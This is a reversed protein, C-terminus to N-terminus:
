PQPLVTPVPPASLCPLPPSPGGWPGCRSKPGPPHLSFAERVFVAAWPFPLSVPSVQRPRHVPSPRQYEWHSRLLVCHLAGPPGTASVRAGWEPSGPELGPRLSSSGVHQLKLSNVPGCHFIRCATIVLRSGAHQMYALYACLLYIFFLFLAAKM